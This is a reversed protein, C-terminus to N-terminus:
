RRTRFRGDLADRTRLEQRLGVFQVDPHGGDLPRHEGQARGFRVEDEARRHREDASSRHGHSRPHDSALGIEEQKGNAACLTRRPSLCGFRLRKM